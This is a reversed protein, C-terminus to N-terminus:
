GSDTAVKSRFVCPTVIALLYQQAKPHAAIPAQGQAQADAIPIRTLARFIGDGDCLTEGSASRADHADDSVALGIAL